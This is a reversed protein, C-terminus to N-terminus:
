ATVASAVGLPKVVTAEGDARSLWYMRVNAPLPTAIVPVEDTMSCIIVQVGSQMLVGALKQRTEQTLMNADDLAMMNLGSAKAAAQRMAAELVVKEGGSLQDAYIGGVSFGFPDLSFAVGGSFFHNCFEQMSEIFGGSSESLIKDKLETLEKVASDLKEAQSEKSRVQAIQLDRRSAVEVLRQLGQLDIEAAAIDGAVAALEAPWNVDKPETAVHDDVAKKAQEYGSIQQAVQSRKKVTEEVQGSQAKGDREIVALKGTIEDVEKQKADLREQASLRQMQIQKLLGAKDAKSLKRQCTPCSEGLGELTKEIALLRQFEGQLTAREDRLSGAQKFLSEYEQKLALLKQRQDKEEAELAAVSVKPDPVPLAALRKNLVDTTRKFEEDRAQRRLIADRKATLERLREELAAKQKADYEVPAPIQANLIKIERNLDRIKEEKTEKIVQDIAGASSFSEGLGLQRVLPPAPVTKTSLFTMLVKRQVEEKRRFYSTPDLLCLGVDEIEIGLKGLIKGKQVKVDAYSGNFGVSHKSETVKRDIVTGDDLRLGIHFENEGLMTERRLGESKANVLPNQGFLVLSIAHLVSSKGVGMSGLFVVFPALTINTLKHSRFNALQVQSIM